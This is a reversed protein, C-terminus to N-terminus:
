IYQNKYMKDCLCNVGQSDLTGGVDKKLSYVKRHILFLFCVNQMNQVTASARLNAAASTVHINKIFTKSIKVSPETKCGSLASSRRLPTWWNPGVGCIFGYLLHQVM